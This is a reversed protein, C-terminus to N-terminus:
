TKNTAISIIKGRGGETVIGAAIVKTLFVPAVNWRQQGHTVVTVTKRNCKAVIGTMPEHGPPHFSVVDGVRVSQMQQHTRMERLLELRAAIQHHLEILEAESFQDINIRM